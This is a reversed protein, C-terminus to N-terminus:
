SNLFLGACGSAAKEIAAVDDWDGKILSAGQTTLAKAAESDPDRILANVTYKKSSLLARAVAGGQAGTAGIVFITPLSM